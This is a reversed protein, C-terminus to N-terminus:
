HIFTVVVNQVPGPGVSFGQSVVLQTESLSVLTFSSSGGTFLTTSIFLITETSQFNWTFPDTQPDAANCKTAGEDVTGTGASTFVMTNDKQCAQIMSSADSGGVTATSFKWTGQSILQTNTKPTPTTDKKSCSSVLLFAIALLAIFSFLQKQM